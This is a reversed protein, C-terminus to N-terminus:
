LIELIHYERVGRPAQVSLTQGPSQGILAQGLPSRASVPMLGDAPALSLDAVLVIRLEEGTKLDTLRVRSGHRVQSSPKSEDVIRAQRIRHTIEAIEGELFAQKEKAAHYAANERLDRQVRAEAIETAVTRRQKELEELRQKLQEYEQRRLYLEEM